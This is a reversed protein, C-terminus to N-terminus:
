ASLIKAKATACEEDTLVGAVRRRTARLGPALTGITSEELVYLHRERKVNRDM